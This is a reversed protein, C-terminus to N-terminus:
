RSSVFLKLGNDFDPGERRYSLKLDPGDYLRLDSGGAHLSLPFCLM